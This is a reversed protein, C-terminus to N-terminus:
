SAFFACGHQGSPLSISAIWAFSFQELAWM